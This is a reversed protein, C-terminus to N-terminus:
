EDKMSQKLGGIIREKKLGHGRDNLLEILGDLYECAKAMMKEKMELRGNHYAHHIATEIIEQDKAEQWKAGFEIADLMAYGDFHTLEMMKTEGYNAYSKDLQPRLWEKSEEELGENVPEEGRMEALIEESTKGKNAETFLKAKREIEAMAEDVSPKAPEVQLTKIFHLISRLALRYYWDGKSGRHEEHLREIEAKVAELIEKDTM